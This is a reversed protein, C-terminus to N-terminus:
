FMGSNSKNFSLQECIYRACNPKTYLFMVSLQKSFHAVLKVIESHQIDLIISEKPNEVSPAFIRIGKSTM